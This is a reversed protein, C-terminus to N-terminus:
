TSTKRKIGIWLVHGSNEIIDENECIKYFDDMIIKFDNNNVSNLKNGHSKIIGDTGVHHIKKLGYKLAILEIESSKTQFFVNNYPFPISNPNNLNYPIYALVVLGNQKCVKISESIVREKSDITDLHYLAGMSLVVDFYNQNYQSLNISNCVTADVLKKFNSNSQIININHEVLDCATVFHGKDALYFSYVGTGACADLIKSKPKFLKDFYTVITLFEVMHINDRFLRGNEDYKEYFDFVNKYV